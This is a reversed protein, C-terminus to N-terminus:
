ESANPPETPLAELKKGLTSIIGNGNCQSYAEFLLHYVEREDVTYYGKDMCRDYNDLLQTRAMAITLQHEAERRDREEKEWEAAEDKRRKAEGLEKNVFLKVLFVIIPCMLLEAAMTVLAQTIAPDM